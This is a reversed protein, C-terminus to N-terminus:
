IFQFLWTAELRYVSCQVSKM